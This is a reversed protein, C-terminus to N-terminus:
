VGRLGAFCDPIIGPLGLSGTANTIRSSEANRARGAMLVAATITTFSQRWGAERSGQVAATGRSWRSVACIASAKSSMGSLQGNRRRCATLGSISVNRNQPVLVQSRERCVATIRQVFAAQSIRSTVAKWRAPQAICISEPIATGNGASTISHASAVAASLVAVAKSLASRTM